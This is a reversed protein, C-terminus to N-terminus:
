PEFENAGADNLLRGPPGPSKTLLTRRLPQMLCNYANFM